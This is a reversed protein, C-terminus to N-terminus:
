QQSARAAVLCPRDIGTRQIDIVETFGGAGWLSRCPPDYVVACNYGYGFGPRMVHMGIGGLNALCNAPKAASPEIGDAQRVRTFFCAQRRTRWRDGREPSVAAPNPSKRRNATQAVEPLSLALCLGLVATTHILQLHSM